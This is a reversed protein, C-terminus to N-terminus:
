FHRHLDTRPMLPIISHLSLVLVRLVGQGVAQKDVVFTVRVSQPNFEPKRQSIRRSVGQVM